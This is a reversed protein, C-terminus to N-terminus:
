KSCVRYAWIIISALIAGSIFGNWWAITTAVHMWLHLFVNHMQIWTPDSWGTVFGKWYNITIDLPHSFVNEWWDKLQYPIVNLGMQLTLGGIVIRRHAIAWLSASSLVEVLSPRVGLFLFLSCLTAKLAQNIKKLM